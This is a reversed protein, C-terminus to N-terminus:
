KLAKLVAKAMSATNGKGNIDGTRASPNTLAITTADSMAKAM